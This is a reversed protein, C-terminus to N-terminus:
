GSGKAVSMPSNPNGPNVKVGQRQLRWVLEMDEMPIAGM